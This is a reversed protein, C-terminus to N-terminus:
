QLLAALDHLTARGSEIRKNMALQQRTKAPIAQKNPLRPADQAKKTVQPAKAQLARYAVADRLALVLRHDYVNGLEEDKFGYAATADAYIKQLAGRDIKAKSLEDWASRYAKAKQEQLWQAQQQQAHDKESAIQSDIEGLVQSINQRRQQEAVWAAPDSSALHSIDQDLGALKAIAARTSEAKQLYEQRVENHRQTLTQVAENERQALAQMKRTYDAQRHYGNVLEAETVEVDSETGDEGKVKVTLKREPTPTNKADEAETDDEADEPQANAEEDNDEDDSPSEDADQVEDEDETGQPNDTELFSALQLLGDTEPASEAHGAM